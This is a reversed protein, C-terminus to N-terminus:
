HLVSVTSKMEIDFARNSNFQTKYKSPFPIQGTLVVSNRTFVYCYRLPVFITNCNIHGM